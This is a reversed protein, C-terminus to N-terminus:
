LHIHVRDMYFMIVMWSGIFDCFGLLILPSVIHVDSPHKFLTKFCTSRQGLVFVVNLWNIHQQQDLKIYRLLLTEPAGVTM